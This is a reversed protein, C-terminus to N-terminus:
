LEEFQNMHSIRDLGHSLYVKILFHGFVDVLGIKKIGDHSLLLSELRNQVIGDCSTEIRTNLDQHILNTV